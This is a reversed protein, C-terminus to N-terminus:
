LIVCKQNKCKERLLIAAKHNAKAADLLPNSKKALSAVSEAVRRAPGRCDVIKQAPKNAPASKNKKTGAQKAELQRQQAMIGRIRRVGEEYSCKENKVKPEESETLVFLMGQLQSSVADFDEPRLKRPPIM